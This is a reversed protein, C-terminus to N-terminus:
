DDFECAQYMQTLCRGKKSINRNHTEYTWFHDFLNLSIKNIKLILVSSSIINKGRFFLLNPIIYFYLTNFIYLLRKLFARLAMFFDKKLKSDLSRTTQNHWVKDYLIWVTIKGVRIRVDDVKIGSVLFLLEIFVKFMKEPKLFYSVRLFDKKLGLFRWM